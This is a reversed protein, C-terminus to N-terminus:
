AFLAFNRHRLGVFAGGLVLDAQPATARITHRIAGLRLNLVTVDEFASSYIPTGCDGCFAQRRSAGTDAVKVYIKLRGRLLHFDEVRAAVSGRFPAGSLCQCDTCHCISASEPEVDASYVIAGCHCRGDVKV